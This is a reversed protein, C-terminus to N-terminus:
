SVIQILSEAMNDSKLKLREFELQKVKSKNKIM